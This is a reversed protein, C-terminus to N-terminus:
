LYQRGGKLFKPRPKLPTFAAFIVAGVGFVTGVIISKQSLSAFTETIAIIKKM